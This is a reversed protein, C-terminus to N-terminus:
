SQVARCGSSDKTIENEGFCARWMSLIFYTMTNKPITAAPEAADTEEELLCANDSGFRGYRLVNM